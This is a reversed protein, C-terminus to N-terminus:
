RVQTGPRVISLVRIILRSSFFLSMLFLFGTIFFLILCYFADCLKLGSCNQFVSIINWTKDQSSIFAYKLVLIVEYLRSFTDKGNQDMLRYWTKFWQQACFLDTNTPFFFLWLLCRFLASARKIEVCPLCQRFSWYFIPIVLGRSCVALFKWLVKLLAIMLRNGKQLSFSIVTTEYFLFIFFCLQLNYNFARSKSAM